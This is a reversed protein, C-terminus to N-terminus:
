PKRVFSSDVFGIQGKQEGGLIRVEYISGMDIVRFRTGSPILWAQRSLIMQYTGVDDRARILQVVRECNERTTAVYVSGDGEAVWFVGEEGVCVVHSSGGSNGCNQLGLLVILMLVIFTKKKASTM